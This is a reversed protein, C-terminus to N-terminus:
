ETMKQTKDVLYKIASLTLFPYQQKNTCTIVTKITYKHFAHLLFLSHLKLDVRIMFGSTAAGGTCFEM